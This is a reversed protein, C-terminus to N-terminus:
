DPERAPLLRVLEPSEQAAIVPLFSQVAELFGQADRSEFVGSVRLAELSPDGIRIQLRSHRNLERVADSLLTDKFIVIGQRWAIAAAIDADPVLLARGDPEVRLEQGAILDITRHAFASSFNRSSGGVSAGTPVGVSVAVKGEVMAVQMYRDLYDVNFSTGVATITHEGAEVRFPRRPDSAVMFQAQGRALEIVRSDRSLRVRLTTLADLAIRSRDELEIIRQEGIGDCLGGRQCQRCVNRSYVWADHCRSSGCGVELSVASESPVLSGFGGRACAGIGAGAVCDVWAFHSSRWPGAM